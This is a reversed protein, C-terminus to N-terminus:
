DEAGLIAQAEDLALDLDYHYVQYSILSNDPYFHLTIITSTESMRKLVTPNVSAVGQPDSAAQHRMHEEVTEVDRHANVFLYIGCKCREMLSKLKDATTMLRMGKAPKEHKLTKAEGGPLCLHCICDKDHETM